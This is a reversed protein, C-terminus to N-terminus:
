HWFTLQKHTFRSIGGDEEEDARSKAEEEKKIKLKQVVLDTLVQSIRSELEIKSM